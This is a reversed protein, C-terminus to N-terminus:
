QDKIQIEFHDLMSPVKHVWFPRFYVEAGGIDEFRDFYEKIEHRDRGILEEKKLIDASIKARSEGQVSVLLRASKAELDYSSVRYNFTDWQIGLFEKDKPADELIMKNAMNKLREENFVLAVTRVKVKITFNEAQIEPEVSASFELIENKVASELIKENSSIQNKLQSIAKEYLQEALMDFAKDITYNYVYPLELYGGTMPQSSEAYLKDQWGKWINVINFREPGINGEKGEQDATVEVEVQEGAPVVVRQDTRFLIGSASLLRTRALLPQDKDRKNYVTVKGTANQDYGKSDNTTVLRSEEFELSLVKGPIITENPPNEVVEAEFATGFTTKQPFIVITARAFSVYVITGLVGLSILVFFFYFKKYSRGSEIKGLYM